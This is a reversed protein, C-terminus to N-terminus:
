AADELLLSRDDIWLATPTCVASPTHADTFTMGDAALRDLHPTPIRSHPNLAHVDGYGMDDALIFVIHPRLEDASLGRSVGTLLLPTLLCCRTIAFVYRRPTASM